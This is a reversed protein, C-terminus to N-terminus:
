WANGMPGGNAGQDSPSGDFDFIAPDGPDIAPSDLLLYFDWDAADVFLPDAVRNNLSAATWGPGGYMNNTGWMLNYDVRSGASPAAHLGLGWDFPGFIINNLIAYPGSIHSDIGGADGQRAPYVMDGQYYWGDPPGEINVVTNNLVEASQGDRLDIGVSSDLVINNTIM